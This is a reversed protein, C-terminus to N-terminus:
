IHFNLYHPMVKSLISKGKLNNSLRKFQISKVEIYTIKIMNNLVGYKGTSLAKVSNQYVIKTESCAIGNATIFNM